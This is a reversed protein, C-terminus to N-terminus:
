ADFDLNWATYRERDDKWNPAVKVFLRLHARCGLIEELELRAETGIRKIQQGHKGLVIAKQSDREVYIVQEIAISGNDREQWHETEVTLAYPLERHLRLFLKERTIEAALLRVPMEAMQEADYLWPGEPMAGACAERLETLGDGNLASIMFTATFDAQENLAASLPLLIEADIGDVKNLALFVPREGRCRKVIREPVDALKKARADVMFIVADADRAGDWAASVMARDLRKQPEFLGPTDILIIQADKEVTIGLVRSRTTQVKPSVISVKGGVLANVLTSKGANPAGLVAVFGCRPPAEATPQPGAGPATEVM